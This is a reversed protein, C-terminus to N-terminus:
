GKAPDGIAFILPNTTASTKEGYYMRLSYSTQKFGLEKLIKIGSKSNELIGLGITQIDGKTKATVLAARILDMTSEFSDAIGARLKLVKNQFTGFLYGTLSNDKDRTIFTFDPHEEFLPSLFDERNGGFFVKDAELIVALDDEKCNSVPFKQDYKKTKAILNDLDSPKEINIKYRLSNMEFVFGVRKYLTKALKVADLKITTCGQFQLIKMAEKMLEQGIGMGRYEPKVIVHGIIGIQGFSAALTIGVMEATEKDIVSIYKHNSNRMIRTIDERTEGWAVMDLLKFIDEFDEQTAIYFDLYGTM